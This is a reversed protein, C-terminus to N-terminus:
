TEVGCKNINIRKSSGDNIGKKFGLSMDCTVIEINDKLGNHEVFHEVFKDVTKSDKGNTCFIVKKKEVDVFVTIYNHGKKSTEDIGLIKVDSYDEKKLAETVYHHVIRWLRTDNERVIKSAQLVTMKKVLEMVFAEFLLTFGINPRAWPVEVMNIGIDCKIRPVNCHIYTKHQFFDLHRWTREKTDYVGYLKQSDKNTPSTFKSGKEFSITIHLELVDNIPKLETNSVYWPKSLGLAKTFLELNNMNM